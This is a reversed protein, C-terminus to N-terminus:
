HSDRKLMINLKGPPMLMLLKRPLTPRSTPTTSKLTFFMLKIPRSPLLKDRKRPPKMLKLERRLFKSWITQPKRPPLLMMSNRKPELKICIQSFLKVSPMTSPLVPPKKPMVLELKPGPEKPKLHNIPLRQSSSLLPKPRSKKLQQHSSKRPLKRPKLLPPKQPKSPDFVM